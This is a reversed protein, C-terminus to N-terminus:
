RYRGFTDRPPITVYGKGYCVPCEWRGHDPDVKKSRSKAGLGQAATTVAAKGAMIAPILDPREAQVLRARDVSQRSVGVILAAQQTVWAALAPKRPVSGGHGGQREGAEAELFPLAALAVVAKQSTSLHRRRLNRSLVCEVLSGRCDWVEFRPVVGVEMCARYRNRGDIIRGEHTLIPEVLGRRRIGETLVAFEAGEMLPFVSTVPHFAIM